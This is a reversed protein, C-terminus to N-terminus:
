VYGPGASPAVHQPDSIAGFLNGLALWLCCRVYTQVLTKASKDLVCFCVCLPLWFPFVFFCVGFSLVLSNELLLGLHFPSLCNILYLKSYHNYFICYCSFFVYYSYFLLLWFYLICYRFYIIGLLLLCYTLHLLPRFWRKLLCPLFFCGALAVFM